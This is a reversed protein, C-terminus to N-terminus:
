GGTSYRRTPLCGTLRKCRRAPSGRKASSKKWEANTKESFVKNLIANLEKKNRLRDGMKVFRPDTALEPMGLAQCLLGWFKENACTVALYYDKTQFAQFPVIAQHGSGLPKAMEGGHSFYLAPYTVLATLSDLLSIDVLQGEGTKERYQLASLIGVIAWMSGALDGMPVGLRLPGTGEEGTMSMSGSLAQIILDYAPRQGYPGEPGYATISCYIIRPNITKLREYDVGLKKTVGPRFNEIVIDAKQVLGYFLNKGQEANLNLTVGKKNRNLSIYYLSEGEHFYPPIQRSADGNGPEEIKIVEAGLDGLVMSAYPGSMFTTLDLVRIGELAKKMEGEKGCVIADRLHGRDSRLM